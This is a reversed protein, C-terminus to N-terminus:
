ENEEEYRYRDRLAILHEHMTKDPDRNRKKLDNIIEIASMRSHVPVDELIEIVAAEAAVVVEAAKEVVVMEPGAVSATAGLLFAGILNLSKTVLNGGTNAYLGRLKGSQVDGRDIAAIFTKLTEIDESSLLNHQASIAIAVTAAGYRKEPNLYHSSEDDLERATPFRRALPGAVRVMNMLKRRANIPLEPAGLRGLVVDDDAELLSGIVCLTTWFTVIESALHQTTGAVIESMEDYASKVDNRGPWNCIEYIDDILGPLLKRLNDHLKRTAAEEAAREDDGSAPSAMVLCEDHQRFQLAAKYQVLGVVNEADIKNSTSPIQGAQASEDYFSDYESENSRGVWGLIEAIDAMVEDPSRPNNDGDDWFETPKNAVKDLKKNPFPDVSADKLIHDYWRGWLPWASGFELLMSRFKNITKVLEASLGYPWLPSALLEFPGSTEYARGNLDIPGSTEYARWDLDIAEWLAKRFPYAAANAAHAAAAAANAAADAANAANAAAAAAADAADAAADAAANAANASAANAIAVTAAANHLNAVVIATVVTDATAYARQSFLTARLVAMTLSKDRVLAIIPLVRWAIRLAIVRAHAPTMGDTKLAMQLKEPNDIRSMKGAPATNDDSM